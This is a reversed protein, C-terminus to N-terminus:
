EIPELKNKIHFELHEINQLTHKLSTQDCSLVRDTFYKAKNESKRNTDKIAFRLQVDKQIRVGDVMLRNLNETNVVNTSISLLNPLIHQQLETLYNGLIIKDYNDPSESQVENSHSIAVVRSHAECLIMVDMLFWLQLPPIKSSVLMELVPIKDAQLLDMFFFNNFDDDMMLAIGLGVLGGAMNAKTAYKGLNMQAFRKELAGVVKPNLKQETELIQRTMGPSSKFMYSQIMRKAAIGGLVSMGLTLSHYWWSAPAYTATKASSNQEWVTLINIVFNRNEKEKEYVNLIHFLAQNHSQEDLTVLAETLRKLHAASRKQDPLNKLSHFLNLAKQLPKVEIPTATVQLNFCILLALLLRM